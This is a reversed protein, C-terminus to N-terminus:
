GLGNKKGREHRRIAMCCLDGLGNMLGWNGSVRAPTDRNKRKNKKGRQRERTIKKKQPSNWEEGAGIVSRLTIGDFFGGERV